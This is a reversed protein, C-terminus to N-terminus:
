FDDVIALEFRADLEFIGDELEGHSLKELVDGRSFPNGGVYVVELATKAERLMMALAVGGDAKVSNQQLDLELLSTRAAGTRLADALAKAGACDVKNRRLKLRTLTSNVRLADAFPYAVPAPLRPCQNRLNLVKLTSSNAVMRALATAGDLGVANIKLNLITLTPHSVLESLARAGKNSVKNFRINLTDLTKNKLLVTSVLKEVVDDGMMNKELNLLTLHGSAFVHELLRVDHAHVSCGRASFRQIQSLRQSVVMEKLTDLCIRTGVFRAALVNPLSIRTLLEDALAKTDKTYVLWPCLLKGDSTFADKGASCTYLLHVVEGHNLFCAIPTAPMDFVSLRSEVVSRPSPTESPTQVVSRPSLRPSLTSPTGADKKTEIWIEKPVNPGVKTDKKGFCGAIFSYCQM